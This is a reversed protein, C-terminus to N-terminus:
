GDFDTSLDVSYKLELGSGNISKGNQLMKISFKYIKRPTLITIHDQFAGYNYVRDLYDFLRRWIMTM